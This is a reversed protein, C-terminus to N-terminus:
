KSKKFVLAEYPLITMNQQLTRDKTNSKFFEFGILEEEFTFEVEKNKFNCIVLLICNDLENEYIFLDENEIDIFTMKGNGVNYEKRL